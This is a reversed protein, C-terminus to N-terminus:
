PSANVLELSELRNSPGKVSFNKNLTTGCLLGSNLSLNQSPSNNCTLETKLLREPEPIERVAKAQKEDWFKSEPLQITKFNEYGM